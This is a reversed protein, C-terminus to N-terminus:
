FTTSTLNAWTMQSWRMFKAHGDVFAVNEGGSHRTQADLYTSSRINSYYSAPQNGTWMIDQSTNNAFAARSPIYNANGANPLQWVWVDALQGACDFFMGWNSPTTVASMKNTPFNPTLNEALGYSVYNNTRNAANYPQSFMDQMGGDDSCNSWVDYWNMQDDPCKYIGASKVYPYIATTWFASSSRPAGNNGGNCFFPWNWAPFTEDYDQVYMMM